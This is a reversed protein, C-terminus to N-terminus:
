EVVRATHYYVTNKDNVHVYTISSNGCSLYIADSQENQAYQVVVRKGSMIIGFLETNTMPDTCEKDKFVYEDGDLYGIHVIIQEVYGMDPLYKENIKNTRVFGRYNPITITLYPLEIITYVGSKPFTVVWGDGLDAVYNDQPIVILFLDCNCYGDDAFYSQIEEGSIELVEGADFVIGNALDDVTLVADSIHVFAEDVLDNASWSGDWNLTDGQFEGFPKNKIFDAATEDTQNWDPQVSAGGGEPFDVAEWETPKGNDDVAKVVITQGVSAKEPAYICSAGEGNPDIVADVDPPVDSLSEGDSLIYIADKGDEGDFEGSAKAAALASNIAAELESQKLYSGLQTIVWSEKAYGTLDVTQAGLIEWKGNAYIYETYLDNGSGGGVLYVTTVSINSTPLSSVVSIAFKPIASIKANIEERTFTQSKTYYNALDSVVKTIFGSDNTIDSTKAPIKTGAPMAGVDGAGLRVEGVQGNVSTVPYPPPNSASYQKVNDVNGLGVESKSYSPKEPQLAWEPINSDPAQIGDIMRKLELGMRASLPKNSVNTLLNDVIDSVSVKSTTIADILTKNSKIYAVIEALQDLDVDDSNALANLKATLASIALSFEAENEKIEEEHRGVVEDIVSVWHRDAAGVEDATYSPKNPQKAWAPVTPDTEEFNINDLKDEIDAMDVRIDAIDTEAEEIREGLSNVESHLQQALTPTVSSDTLLRYNSKLVRFFATVTNTAKDVQTGNIKSYGSLTLMAKGPYKKAEAPIPLLYTMEEGDDLMSPMLMVVASGEGNADTFTAYINLGVWMDGFKLRLGVDNHSGSAGIVVGSGIVYEDNVECDIYRM